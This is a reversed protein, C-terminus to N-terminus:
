ILFIMSDIHAPIQAAETHFSHPMATSALKVKGCLGVFEAEILFEAERCKAVYKIVSADGM